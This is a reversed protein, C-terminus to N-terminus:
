MRVFCAQDLEPPEGGSVPFLTAFSLWLGEREQTEGVVTPRASLVIGGENDPAFRGLFPHHRLQTRNFGLEAVSHVLRNRGDTFPQLLNDDAVVSVM